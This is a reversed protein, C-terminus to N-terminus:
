SQTHPNTYVYLKDNKHTANLTEKERQVSAYLKCILLLLGDYSWDM